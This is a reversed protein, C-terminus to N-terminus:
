DWFISSSCTLKTTNNYKSEFFSGKSHLFNTLCFNINASACRNNCYKEMTLDSHTSWFGPTYNICGIRNSIITECELDLPRRTICKSETSCCANSCSMQNQKVDLSLTLIIHYQNVDILLRHQSYISMVCIDNVDILVLHNPGINGLYM